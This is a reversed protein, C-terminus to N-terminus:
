QKRLRLTGSFSVLNITADGSGHVGYLRGVHMLGIPSNTSKYKLPFETVIEGGESVKASLKFSSDVPMMFTMDGNTTTFDYIGGQALQGMLRLEGSISSAEVRSQGIRDLLIDGSTTKIRLFDSSDLPRLDRAEIVGNLSTLRARGSSDELSVNGGVSMADISKQINRAEIRGDTTVLRAEAVDDVEIDGEQTKLFVAAGRPVNVLVDVDSDCGEEDAEADDTKDSILIELRMAPQADDTGGIKRLEIKKDAARVEARVEKREWGRVNIRGAATTLSVNVNDTATIVAESSGQSASVSESSRATNQGCGQGCGTGEGHRGTGKASSKQAHAGAGCFMIASLLVLVISSNLKM